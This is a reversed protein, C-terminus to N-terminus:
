LKVLQKLRDLLIQNATDDYGKNIAEMVQKLSICPKNMKVYEDAAEHTSFLKGEKTREAFTDPLTEYVENFRCTMGKPVYVYEQNPYVDVGDHTTFLPKKPEAQEVTATNDKIFREATILTKGDPNLYRICKGSGSLSSMFFNYIPNYTKRSAKFADCLFDLETQSVHSIAIDFAKCYEVTYKVEKVNREMDSMVPESEARYTKGNFLITNDDKIELNEIKM